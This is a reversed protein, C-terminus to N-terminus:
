ESLLEAGKIFVLPWDESVAFHIALPRIVASRVELRLASLRYLPEGFAFPNEQLHAIMKEFAALVAQGRGQSSARKQLKKLTQAVAKSCHVQFAPVDEPSAAM